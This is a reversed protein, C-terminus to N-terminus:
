RRLIREMKADDVTLEPPLTGSLQFISTIKEPIKKEYWPTDDDAPIIVDPKGERTIIIDESGLLNLYKKVNADFEEITIKM